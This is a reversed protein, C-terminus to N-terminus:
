KVFRIRGFAEPAHFSRMKTPQWAVFKREPPPGQCRYFNIRMETGDAVPRPDISKMPIKMAGYWIKKKEDIRADVEFGSDWKWGAEPKFNKRDIDLDVWEGQPSMEFEKYQHINQMDWGVFVEAVDWEWLKNTEAKRVPNPKLHLREYPCTFHVYFYQPTWLTRVEMQHGPVPDGMPGNAATLMSARAWFSAAPDATVAADAPARRSEIVGPGAAWLGAAIIGLSLLKMADEVISEQMTRRAKRRIEAAHAPHACAGAGATGSLTATSRLM